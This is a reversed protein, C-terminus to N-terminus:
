ETKGTEPSLDLTQARRITQEITVDIKEAFEFINRTDIHLEALIKPAEKSNKLLRDIARRRFQEMHNERDAEKIFPLRALAETLYARSEFFIDFFGETVLRISGAFPRTYNRYFPNTLAPALQELRQNARIWKMFLDLDQFHRMEHILWSAWRYLSEHGDTPRVILLATPSIPPLEEIFGDPKKLKALLLLERAKPSGEFLFSYRATPLQFSHFAKKGNSLSHTSGLMCMILAPDLTSLPALAGDLLPYLGRIAEIKQFIEKLDRIRSPSVNAAELLRFLEGNGPYGVYVIPERSPLAKSFITRLHRRCDEGTTINQDNGMKGAFIIHDFTGAIISAAPVTLLIFVLAIAEIKIYIHNLCRM